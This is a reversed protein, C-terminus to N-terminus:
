SVESRRYKSGTVSSSTSSITRMSFGFPTITCYPPWVRQLQRALQFGRAHRDDAGARVGDVTGFVPLAELLRNVTQAQLLRGVGGDGGDLLCHFAAPM